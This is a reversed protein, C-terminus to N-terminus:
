GIFHTNHGNRESNAMLSVNLRSNENVLKDFHNLHRLISRRRITHTLSIYPALLNEQYFNISFYFAWSLSFRTTNEHVIYMLIWEPLVDVHIAFFLLNKLDWVHNFWALVNWKNNQECYIVAVHLCWVNSSMWRHGPRDVM